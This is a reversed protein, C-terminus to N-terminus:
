GLNPIVQFKNISFITKAKNAIATDLLEHDKCDYSNQNGDKFEQSFTEKACM